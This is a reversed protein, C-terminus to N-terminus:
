SAWSTDHWAIIAGGEGDSAIVPFRQQGVATSIANNVSPDTSWQSYSSSSFLVIATLLLMFSLLFRQM